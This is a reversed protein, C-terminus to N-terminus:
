ARDPVNMAELIAEDSPFVLDLPDQTVLSYQAWIPELFPDLKQPPVLDPNSSAQQFINYAVEVTSLPMDMGLNKIGEMSNSPSPLTWPDHFYSTKFYSVQFIAARSQDPVVSIFRVDNSPSPYYFNGMFSPFLVVGLNVTGPHPNDVM